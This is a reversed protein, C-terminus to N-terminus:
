SASPKEQCKKTGFGGKKPRVGRTKQRPSLSMLLLSAPQRDFVKAVFVRLNSPVFFVKFNEKPSYLFYLIRKPSM